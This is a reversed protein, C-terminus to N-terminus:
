KSVDILKIEIKEINIDPYEDKTPRPEITVQVSKYDEANIEELLETIGFRMGSKCVMSEDKKHPIAAFTGAYESECATIKTSDGCDNVFVDFKAPKMGDFNIGTVCLIEKVNKKDEPKRKEGGNPRNLRFRVPTKNIVVNSKFEEGNMNKASTNTSSNACRPKPKRDKWSDISSHLYKYKLNDLNVCDRNYVRVPKQNEDFFVYSANLWDEGEPEKHGVVEMDKWLTWMRDVNSHHLYFLPDYGASYFNGMDEHNPKESDGVWRHVATHCGAEISGVLNDANAIPASGAVYRGGFFSKADFANRMMQRNMTTDNVDKQSYYKGVIRDTGTFDLDIMVGPKIHKKERFLDYLPNPNTDSQKAELVFNPIVMGDPNDWNWYPLGFTKDKVFHGLIREFFYLYYRHFPFFLWSNHIQLQQGNQTYSGNCYACHVKAQNKFSRPDDDPLDRMQQIGYRFKEIYEPSLSHLPQRIRTEGPQPFVYDEEKGYKSPPPCCATSRFLGKDANFGSGAEKCSPGFSSVISPSKVADAFASPVGNLSVTSYVGGLGLLLNRRDVNQWDLSTQPLILKQPQPNTTLPKEHDDSSVNCSVQFRHTQKAHTKLQRQQTPTQSLFLSFSSTTTALTFSLPAM